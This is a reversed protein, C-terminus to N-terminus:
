LTFHLQHLLSSVLPPQQEFQYVLCYFLLLDAQELSQSLLVKTILHCFHDTLGKDLDLCRFVLFIEATFLVNISSWFPLKRSEVQTDTHLSICRTSDLQQLQQLTVIDQCYLAACLKSHRSAQHLCPKILGVPRTSSRGLSLLTQSSGTTKAASHM